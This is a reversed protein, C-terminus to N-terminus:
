TAEAQSAEFNTLFPLTMVDAFHVGNYISMRYSDHRQAGIICPLLGMEYLYPSQTIIENIPTFDTNLPAHYGRISRHSVLSTDGNRHYVVECGINKFM